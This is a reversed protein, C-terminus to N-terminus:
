ARLRCSSVWNNSNTTSPTAWLHPDEVFRASVYDIFPDFPDPGGLRVRPVADGALCRRITERDFGAHRAIASNSWGKKRRAHVEM